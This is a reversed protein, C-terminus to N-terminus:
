SQQRQPPVPSAQLQRQHTRAISYLRQLSFHCSKVITLLSRVAQSTIQIQVYAVKLLSRSKEDDPDRDIFIHAHKQRMKYNLQLLRKAESLQGNM